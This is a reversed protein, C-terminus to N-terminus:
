MFMSLHNALVVEAGIDFDGGSGREGGESQRQERASQDSIGKKNVKSRTGRASVRSASNIV